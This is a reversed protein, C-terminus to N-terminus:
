LTSSVDFPNRSEERANVFNRQKRKRSKVRKIEVSNGPSPPRVDTMGGNRRAYDRIEGLNPDTLIEPRESTETYHAPMVGEVTKHRRRAVVFVSGIAVIVIMTVSAAGYIILKRTKEQEAEAKRSQLENARTIDTRLKEEAVRAAELTEEHQKEALERNLKAQEASKQEAKRAEERAVRKMEATARNLDDQSVAPKEVQQEQEASVSLSQSCVFVVFLLWMLFNKM